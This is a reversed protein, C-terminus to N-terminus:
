HGVGAFRLQFDLRIMQSKIITDIRDIPKIVCGRWARIFKCTVILEILAYFILAANLTFGIKDALTLNYIIGIVILIPWFLASNFYEVLRSVQEQWDDRNCLQELNMLMNINYFESSRYRFGIRGLHIVIMVPLLRLSLWWVVKNLVIFLMVFVIIVGITAM